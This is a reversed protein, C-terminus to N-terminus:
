LPKRYDKGFINNGHFAKPHIYGNIYDVGTLEAYEEMTRVSGLGYPTDDIQNLYLDRIRVFSKKEILTWTERHEYEEEESWFLPRYETDGFKNHYLHMLPADMLHFMQFGKTFARIALTQEEGQFFIESDYPIEHVFEKKALIFGGSILFAPCFPKFHDVFKSDIQLKYGGKTLFTQDVEEPVLVVKMCLITYPPNDALEVKNEDPVRSPSKLLELSQTYGTIIPKEHYKELELMGNTLEVDWDPKFGIHSDIQLYYEEDQYLKQVEARAWCAGKSDKPHIKVYRIQDKIDKLCEQDLDLAFEDLEQEVVGFVLNEKNKANEWCNWITWGLLPDRYSAISIFIKM